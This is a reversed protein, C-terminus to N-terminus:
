NIQEVFKTCFNYNCWTTQLYLSVLCLLLNNFEKVQIYLAHGMLIPSREFAAEMILKNPGPHKQKYFKERMLIETM